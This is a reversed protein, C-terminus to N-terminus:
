EIRTPVVLRSFDAKDSLKRTEDKPLDGSLSSIVDFIKNTKLTRYSGIEKNYTIGEPFILKQLKKRNQLGGLEWIKHVNASLNISLDVYNELNSLKQKAKNLEYNLATIEIVIERSVTNYINEDISGLAHRRKVINLEKEKEKLIQTMKMEIDKQSKNLFMFSLNLQKKLPEILKDNIQYQKILDSFKSHLHKVNVNVKCDPTNCKMYKCNKKLASKYSTFPKLCKDCLVTSKLPFDEDDTKNTSTLYEKTIGNLMLFEDETIMKEQVGRIPEYDLLKDSVIGCYFPNKFIVTLRKRDICLGMASLWIQIETNSKGQYLKMKFAESILRGKDNIFSKRVGTIKNREGKTYGIPPKNPWGGKRLFNKTGDVSKERRAVNDLHSFIMKISRMAHGIPTSVDMEEKTALVAVGNKALEDAIVIANAGTRSFRDYTTVIVCEIHRNAKLFQLMSQFEKRKFDDKASEYTGGFEKVITFGKQRAFERCSLTQTELSFNTEAQEKTSVRTYSVAFKEKNNKKEVTKPYLQRFLHLNDM